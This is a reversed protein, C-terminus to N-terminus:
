VKCILLSNYYLVNQYIEFKLRDNSRNVKKNKNQNQSQSQSKNYKKQINNRNIQTIEAESYQAEWEFMRLDM